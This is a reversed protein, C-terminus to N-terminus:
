DALVKVKQLIEESNKFDIHVLYSGKTKDKSEYLRFSNVEGLYDVSFESSNSLPYEKFEKLSELRYLKSEKVIYAVYPNYRRHISNSTQIFMVDEKSEQNLIKIKKDIALSLDLFLVRKIEQQAKIKNLEKTYFTNSMNLSAYSKYLFLMVISLITISIMLEILTFADRSKRM